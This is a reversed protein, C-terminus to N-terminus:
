DQEEKTVRGTPVRCMDLKLSTSKMIQSRVCNCLELFIKFLVMPLPCFILNYLFGM